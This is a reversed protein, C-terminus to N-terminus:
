KFVVEVVIDKPKKGDDDVGDIGVSYIKFGNDNARYNLPQNSFSDQPMETVYEPVLEGLTQPVKGTKSRFQCIALSIDTMKEVLEHKLSARIVSVTSNATQIATWEGLLRSWEAMTKPQLTELEKKFRPERLEVDRKHWAFLKLCSQETHNRIENDFTRNFHRMAENWDVKTGYKGEAAKTVEQQIVFGKGPYIVSAQLGSLIFLRDYYRLPEYDGFVFRNDKMEKRIRAWQQSTLTASAMFQKLQINSVESWALASLYDVFGGSKSVLKSMKRLSLNLQWASEWDGEGVYKMFYASLLDRRKFVVIANECSGMGSAHIYPIYLAKQEAAAQWQKVYSRNAILWKAGSAHDAERWPSQELAWGEDFSGEFRVYKEKVELPEIGLKAFYEALCKERDRYFVQPGNLRILAVYANDEPSVKNKLQDLAEVYDVYGDKDLPQTIFTTAKSVEIQNQQAKAVPLAVFIACFVVHPGISRLM